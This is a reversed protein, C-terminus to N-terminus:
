FESVSLRQNRKFRKLFDRKTCTLFTQYINKNVNLHCSKIRIKGARDTKIEKQGASQSMKKLFTSQM